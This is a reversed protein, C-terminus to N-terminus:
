HSLGEAGRLVYDAVVLGPSLIVLVRLLQTWTRGTFALLVVTGLGAFVLPVSDGYQHYRHYGDLIQLGIFMSTAAASVWGHNVLRSAACGLVTGGAIGLVTWFLAESPNFGYSTGPYKIHYLVAKGLYFAVVSVALSAAGRIAGMVVTFRSGILAILLTWLQFTHALPRLTPNYYCYAGFVGVLMGAMLAVVFGAGGRRSLAVARSWSVIHRAPSNDGHPQTKVIM